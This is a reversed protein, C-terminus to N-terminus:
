ELDLKQQSRNKQQLENLKNEIQKKEKNLITPIYPLCKKIKEIDEDKLKEIKDLSENLADTSIRIFDKYKTYTYRIIASSWWYVVSEWIGMQQSVLAFIRAMEADFFAM